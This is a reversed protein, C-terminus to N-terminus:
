GPDNTEVKTLWCENQLAIWYVHWDTGDTSPEQFDESQIDIPTMQHNDQDMHDPLIAQYNHRSDTM